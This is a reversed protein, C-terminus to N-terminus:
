LFVVVDVNLPQVHNKTLDDKYTSPISNALFQRFEIIAILSHSESFKTLHFVHTFCVMYKSNLDLNNLTFEREKVLSNHEQSGQADKRMTSQLGMHVGTAVPTANLRSINEFGFRISSSPFFEMHWYLQCSQRVNISLTGYALTTPLKIYAHNTCSWINTAFYSQYTSKLRAGSFLLIFLLLSSRSISLPCKRNRM